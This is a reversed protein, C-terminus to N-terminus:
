GCALRNGAYTGVGAGIGTAILQGTGAGIASGVLGGVVAGGITGALCGFEHQRSQGSYPDSSSQCGALLLSATAVAVIGPKMM